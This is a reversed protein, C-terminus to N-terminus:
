TFLVKLQKLWPTGSLGIFMDNDLSNLLSYVGSLDSINNEVTM